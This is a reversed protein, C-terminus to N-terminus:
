FIRFAFAAFDGNDWSDDIIDSRGVYIDPLGNPFIGGWTKDIASNVDTDLGFINTDLTTTLLSPVFGRLSAPPSHILQNLNIVLTYSNDALLVDQATVSGQMPAAFADLDQNAQAVLGASPQPIITDGSARNLLATLASKGKNTAALWSQEAALLRAAGDTKLDMFPPAPLFENPTIPTGSDFTASYTTIANNSEPFTGTSSDYATLLDIQASAAQLLAMLAAREPPGFQATATETTESGEPTADAILTPAASDSIQNLANLANAISTRVAEMNTAIAWPTPSGLDFRETYGLMPVLKILRAADAYTDFPAFSGTPINHLRMRIFLDALPHNLQSAEDDTMTGGMAVLGSEAALSAEALALGTLADANAPNAAVLSQFATQLAAAESISLVTTLRAKTNLDAIAADITGNGGGNGGGNNGGGNNGSNTSGGSTATGGGGGGGGCGWLILAFLLAFLLPLVPKNRM